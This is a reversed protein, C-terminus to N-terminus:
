IAAGNFILENLDNTFPLALEVSLNRPRTRVRPRLVFARSKEDEFDTLDSYYYSLDIVGPPVSGRELGSFGRILASFVVLGM